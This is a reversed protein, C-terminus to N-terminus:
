HTHETVYDPEELAASPHHIRDGHHEHHTKRDRDFAPDVQRDRRHAIARQPVLYRWQQCLAVETLRHLHSGPRLGRDALDQAIAQRADRGRAAALIDLLRHFLAQHIDHRPQLLAGM